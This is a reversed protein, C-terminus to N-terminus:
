NWGILLTADDGKVDIRTALYQHAKLGPSCSVVDKQPIEPFAVGPFVIRDGRQVVIAAAPPRLKEDHTAVLVHKRMLTEFVGINREEEAAWLVDRDAETLFVAGTIGKIHTVIQFMKKQVEEDSAVQEAPRRQARFADYTLAAIRKEPDIAMVYSIYDRIIDPDPLHNVVLGQANTAESGNRAFLTGYKFFKGFFGHYSYATDRMNHFYLDTSFTEWPARHVEIYVRRNTIYLASKQWLSRTVMYLLISAALVLLILMATLPWPLIGLVGLLIVIILLGAEVILHQAVRRAFVVPHLVIKGLTIEFGM